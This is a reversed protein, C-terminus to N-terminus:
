GFHKGLWRAFCLLSWLHQKFRGRRAKRELERVFVESFLAFGLIKNAKLIESSADMEKLVWELFPTSLGKKKRYIIEDSLLGQEKAISKLLEKPKYNPSPNELSLALKALAFFPTKIEVLDSMAGLKKAVIGESAIRFDMYRMQRLEKYNNQYALIPEDISFDKCDAFLLEKQYRTFVECFGGYIPLGLAKRRLYESDKSILPYRAQPLDYRYFELVRFYLDYGLFCEDAGEASFAVSHGHSAIKECLFRLAISASDALPEANFDSAYFTDLFDKKGLNVSHLKCGIFDAAARAFESEDYHPADLFALNFAQVKQENQRAFLATLLSSDLGGSLLACPNQSHYLSIQKELTALIRSKLFELNKEDYDLIGVGKLSDFVGKKLKGNKYRLYEGARLEFVSKFFSKKASMFSLYESLASLDLEKKIGKLLENKDKSIKFKKGDFFYYIGKHCFLARAAFYEGTKANHAIFTTKLNALNKAISKEGLFELNELFELIGVSPFKPIGSPFELNTIIQWPM